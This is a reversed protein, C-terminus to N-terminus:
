GAPCDFMEQDVGSPTQGLKMVYTAVQRADGEIAALVM